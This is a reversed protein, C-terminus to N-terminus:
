DNFFFFERAENVTDFPNPPLVSTNIKRNFKNKNIKNSNNISYFSSSQESIGITNNTKNYSNLSYDAWIGEKNRENKMHHPIKNYMIKKNDIINNIDIFKKKKYFEDNDDVGKKNNICNYNINKLDYFNDINSLSRNIKKNSNIKNYNYQNKFKEYEFLSDNKSNYYESGGNNININKNNENNLKNDNNQKNIINSYNLLSSKLETKNTNDNETGSIYNKFFLNNNNNINKNDLNDKNIYYDQYQTSAEKKLTKKIIENQIQNDISNNISNNNNISIISNENKIIKTNIDKNNNFELSNDKIQNLLSKKIEKKNNPNIKNSNSNIKFSFSSFSNNIDNYKKKNEKSIIEIQFQSQSNSRVLAKKNNLKKFDNNIINEEQDNNINNNENNNHINNKYNNNAIANNKILTDDVNNISNINKFRTNFIENNINANSRYDFNYNYSSSELGGTVYKKKYKTSNIQNNLNDSNNIIYKQNDSKIKIEKKNEQFKDNINEIQKPSLIYNFYLNKNNNSKNSKNDIEYPDNLLIDKSINNQNINDMNNNKIKAQLLEAEKELNIRQKQENKIEEKIKELEKIKEQEEKKLKKEEEEFKLNKIREEENKNKIKEEELKKRLKIEEIDMEEKKEKEKRLRALREMIERDEENENLKIEFDFKKQFDGKENNKGIDYNKNNNNKNKKNLIKKTENLLDSEQFLSDQSQQIIDSNKNINNKIIDKDKSLLNSNIKDLYESEEDKEEITNHTYYHIINNNIEDKEANKNDNNKNIKNKNKLKHNFELKETIRKEEDKESNKYNSTNNNTFESQNLNLHSYSKQQDEDDKSKYITHLSQGESQDKTIHNIILNSNNKNRKKSNNNNTLYTLNNINSTSKVYNTPSSEAEYPCMQFSSIPTSQNIQNISSNEFHSIPHINSFLSNNCDNKKMKKSLGPKNLFPRNIFQNLSYKKINNNRKNLNNDKQIPKIESIDKNINLNIENNDLNKIKDDNVKDNGKSQSKKLNNNNDINNESMIYEENNNEQKEEDNETNKPFFYKDNSKFNYDIIDEENDNEEDDNNYNYNKIYRKKQSNIEDNIRHTSNSVLNLDIGLYQKNTPNLYYNYNRCSNSRASNRLNKKLKILSSSSKNLNNINNYSRTYKKNAKYKKHFSKSFASFGQSNSFIKKLSKNIPISSLKKKSSSNYSDQTNVRPTIKPECISPHLSNYVYKKREKNSKSNSNSNLDIIRMKTSKQNDSFYKKPKSSFSKASNFIIKNNIHKSNDSISQPPNDKLNRKQFDINELIEDRNNNKEKKIKAINNPFNSSPTNPNYFTNSYEKTSSIDNSHQILSINRKM